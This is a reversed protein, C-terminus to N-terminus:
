IKKIIAFFFIYIYLFLYNTKTWQGLYIPTMEIIKKWIVRVKKIITLKKDIKMFFVLNKKVGTLFNTGYFINKFLLFLVFNIKFVDIKEMKKWSIFFFFEGYSLILPHGVNKLDGSGIKQHRPETYILIQHFKLFISTWYIAKFIINITPSIFGFLCFKRLM